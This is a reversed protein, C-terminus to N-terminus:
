YRAGIKLTGGHSGYCRGRHGATLTCFMYRGFMDRGGKACAPIAVIPPHTSLYEATFRGDTGIASKRTM